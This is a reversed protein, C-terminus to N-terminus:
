LLLGECINSSLSANRTLWQNALFFNWFLAPTGGFLLALGGVCRVRFTRTVVPMGRLSGDNRLWRASVVHGDHGLACNKFPRADRARRRSVAM